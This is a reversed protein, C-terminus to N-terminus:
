RLHHTVVSVRPRCSLPIFVYRSRMNERLSKSQRVQKTSCNERHFTASHRRRGTYDASNFPGFWDVRDGPWVPRSPYTLAQPGACGFTLQLTHTLVIWMSCKNTHYQCHVEEVVPTYKNFQLWYVFKLCDFYCTEVTWLLKDLRVMTMMMYAM